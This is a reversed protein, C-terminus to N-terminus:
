RRPFDATKRVSEAYTPFECVLAHTRADWIRAFGDASGVIMKSGDPSIAIDGHITTPAARFEAVRSSAVSWIKVTEDASATALHKGDPSWAVSWIRKRHGLLTKSPQMADLEWLRLVGEKGASALVDGAPSYALSQIWAKHGGVLERRLRVQGEVLDWEYIVERRGAAALRKGDSSVSLAFLKERPLLEGRLQKWDETQWVHLQEAEDVAFLLTGDPSYGLGQIFDLGGELTKIATGDAVDWVRVSRDNGGSTVHTGDPSFCVALVEDLHGKLARGREGTAPDWLRVTHAENGAALVHGEPDFALCTVETTNDRLVQLSKGTAVDWLRVAGDGGGSALLHGQPAFAVAMVPKRHGTLSLVEPGCQTRLYHWAFERLDEEGPAPIQRNLADLAQVVNNARLSEYAVRVDATYLLRRRAEAEHEARAVEAALRSNYGIVLGFITVAATAVAVALTAVAPRRRAWKWTRAVASLPRAETPKGALFRDLDDVLQLATPYRAESSKALCKLCIAELDRPIGPRLRTPRNPEEFLVHRLAEVESETEFVRRGTLVEYLIAGLAYVDTRADLERVKGRAQEPAMYAPTGVLAGSRTEEGERELLKAMGFDALKPWPEAAPHEFRDANSHLSEVSCAEKLGPAPLQTQVSALLVNSPKIDRHLVGRGHAHGVGEALRRVLAAAMRVPVPERRDHLWTELTPGPCYESAIYCAGDEEGSEYVAILYPHNLRAAAEAERIFRMRLDDSVLSALRPVKLAVQRSLKPDYALYVVGLGGHGLKAHIQFRGIRQKTEGGPTCISAQTSLTAEAELTSDARCVRHLLELCRRDADWLALLDPDDTIASADIDDRGAGRAIQEDLDELLRAFVDGNRDNGIGNRM